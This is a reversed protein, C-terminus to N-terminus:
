DPTHEVIVEIRGAITTGQESGTGDRAFVAKYPGTRFQWGSDITPPSVGFIVQASPAWILDSQLYKGANPGSRQLADVSVVGPDVWLTLTRPTPAVGEPPTDFTLGNIRAQARTTTHINRLTAREGDGRVDLKDVKIDAEGDALSLSGIGFPGDGDAKFRLDIESTWEQEVAGRGGRISLTQSTNLKVRWHGCRKLRDTGDSLQKDSLEQGLIALQRAFSFLFRELRPFDGLARCREFEEDLCLNWTLTYLEPPIPRKFEEYLAKDDAIGMLQLQQDYTMFTQLAATAEYCGNQALELRGDLVQEDFDFAKMLNRLVVDLPPVDIGILEQSRRVGMFQAMWSQIRREVAAQRDLEFVRWDPMQLPWVSWYGSFHSVEFTVASKSMTALSLAADQGHGLYDGTAIGGPPLPATPTMTLRAPVALQLGNPELEVGLLHETPSQFGLGELATLPTMTITTDGPLSQPPIELTYTAGDPATAKLTGGAWGIVATTGTDTALTPRLNRPAPPDAFLSGGPRPESGAVSPGAAPGASQPVDGSPLLSAGSSTPASTCAAALNMTVITALLPRFLGKM